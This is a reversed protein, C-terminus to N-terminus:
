PNHWDILAVTSSPLDAATKVQVGYRLPSYVRRSAEHLGVQSVDAASRLQYLAGSIEAESYDCRQLTASLIAEEINNNGARDKWNDLYRCGLKEQFLDLVRNQTVREFGLVSM